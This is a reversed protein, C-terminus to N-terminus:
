FRMSFLMLTPYHLEIMLPHSEIMDWSKISKQVLELKSTLISRWLWLSHTFLPHARRSMLFSSIILVRSHRLSATETGALYGTLAICKMMYEDTDDEAQSLFDAVLSKSATGEAMQAKVEDFPVNLTQQSLEKSHGLLAYDGGLCWAPLKELFPFATFLAAKEPTLVRKAVDALELVSTLTAERNATHGYTIAVILSAMCLHVHQQPDISTNLLNVVLENAQRSYIERYSIAADARMVQHMIKRHRQLTEGYPLLASSFNLGARGRRSTLLDLVLHIIAYLESTRFVPRDSYIASRKDLLERAITESSIVVMDIGLLSTYMLKGYTKEWATYTLWPRKTDVQLANGLLPLPRPGPPLPHARGRTRRLAVVLAIVCPIGITLIQVFSM